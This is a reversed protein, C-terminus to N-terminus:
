CRAQSRVLEAAGPRIPARHGHDGYLKEDVQFHAEPWQAEYTAACPHAIAATQRFFHQAERPAGVCTNQSSFDCTVYGHMDCAWPYIDM